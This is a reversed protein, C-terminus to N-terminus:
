ILKLDLPATHIVWIAFRYYFGGLFGASIDVVM